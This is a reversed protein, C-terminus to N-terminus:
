DSLVLHRMASFIFAIKKKHHRVYKVEATVECILVIAATKDAHLLSSIDPSLQEGLILILHYRKRPTM